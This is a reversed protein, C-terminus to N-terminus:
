DRPASECNMKERHETWQPWFRIDSPLYITDAVLSLPADILAFPFIFIEYWDIHDDYRSRVPAVLCQGAGVIDTM